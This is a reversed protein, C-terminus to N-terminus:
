DVRVAHRCVRVRVYNLRWIRLTIQQYEQRAPRRGTETFRWGTHRGRKHLGLEPSTEMYHALTPREGKTLGFYRSFKLEPPQSGGGFAM